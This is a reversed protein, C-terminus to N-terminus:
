AGNLNGLDGICQMNFCFFIWDFGRLRPAFSFLITVEENRLKGTGVQFHAKYCKYVNNTSHSVTVLENFNWHELSSYLSFLFLIVHIVGVRWLYVLQHCMLDAARYDGTQKIIIECILQHSNLKLSGEARGSVVIYAINVKNQHVFFHKHPCKQDHM